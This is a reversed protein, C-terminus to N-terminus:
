INLLYALGLGLLYGAACPKARADPSSCSPPVILLLEMETDDAGILPIQICINYDKAKSMKSGNMLIKKSQNLSVCTALAGVVMKTSPM